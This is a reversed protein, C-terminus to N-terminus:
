ISELKFKIKEVIKQKLDEHPIKSITPELFGEIIIKEAEKQELGRSMLYYIQDKDVQGVTVGHSCRIVDNTLIELEPISEARANESLLLNRNEQHADSKSAEHAIKLNGTYASRSKDKLAVRFDLSSRTHPAIHSLATHHDFKQIGDGLVIGHTTIGSSYGNLEARLDAKSIKAGLAVILNNFEAHEELNVSQSFHHIANKDHNQINLYELKAGKSLFVEMVVNSLLNGTMKMESSIEDILTLQAGEELVVLIRLGHYKDKNFKLIKVIIPENLKVNKPVHLYYGGSWIAQNLSNIRNPNEKYLKSIGFTNKFGEDKLTSQSSLESLLVKNNKAEDNILFTCPVSEFNIDRENLEFDVPDSYRWLHEVRSPLSMSLYEKWSNLRKEKLWEPEENLKSIEKITELPNLVKEPKTQITTM